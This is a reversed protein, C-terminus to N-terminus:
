SRRKKFYILVGICVVAASTIGAVVPATPFPEPVDINFYRTESTGNNGALDTAYVTVNHEGNSLGALTTNGEAPLNEGGDLVYSVQSASESVTFNLTVNAANYTTNEPSLVSVSPSTTDVTFNVTASGGIDFYYYTLGEAYGGHAGASIKISRNGDPIGTLNEEYSFEAIRNQNPTTMDLHYVSTNGEQWNTEYFVDTLMNLNEGIINVNFAITINNSTFTVNNSPSFISIEPPKTGAPPHAGWNYDLFPNAQAFSVVFGAVVANVLLVMLFFVEAPFANRWGARNFV